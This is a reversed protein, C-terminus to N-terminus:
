YRHKKFAEVEQAEKEKVRKKYETFFTFLSPARTLGNGEFIIALSPKWVCLQGTRIWNHQTYMM